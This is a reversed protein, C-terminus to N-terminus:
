IDILIVRQLKSLRQVDMLQYRAFPDKNWRLNTEFDPCLLKGIPPQNKKSLGKNGYPELDRKWM